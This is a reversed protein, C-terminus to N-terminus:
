SKIQVGSVNVSIFEREDIPSFSTELVHGMSMCATFTALPFSVTQWKDWLNEWIKKSAQKHMTSFDFNFHDTVYSM